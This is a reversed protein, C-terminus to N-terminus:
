TVILLMVLALVAMGFDEVVTIKTLPVKLITGLCACQFKEKKRLKIAVGLGSFSMVLIEALLLSKSTPNLIMVLGFFLEIFPYVYGYAFIRRALLDYTSYGEAFGKLGILKFGAFVLFFGIMFYSMTTSIAFNGLQSDRFSLIITTVSILGIIIALPIYNKWTSSGVGGNENNKSVVKAKLSDLPVLKMGGCKPCNGAKDQRVELHMPCTYIEM